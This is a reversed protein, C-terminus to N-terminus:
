LAEIIEQEALNVDMSDASYRFYGLTMWFPALRGMHEWAMVYVAERGSKDDVDLKGFGYTM